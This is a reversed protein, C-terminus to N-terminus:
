LCIKRGGFTVRLPFPIRSRSFDLRQRVEFSGWCRKTGIEKLDNETLTTFTQLDIEHRLFLDVYKNLGESTLVSALNDASLIQDTSLERSGDSFQIKDWSSGQCM